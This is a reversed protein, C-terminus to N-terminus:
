IINASEWFNRFYGATVVEEDDGFLNTTLARRIDKHQLTQCATGDNTFASEVVAGQQIVHVVDSNLLTTLRHAIQIITFGLRTQEAALNAAVENQTISDLASTAEDLLLCAPEKVLARAIAIRQKQGGSLRIGGAGIKTEFQLPFTKIFKWACAKKALEVLADHGVTNAEPGDFKRELREGDELGYLINMKITGKFLHIDQSVIAISRRLQRVNWHDIPKGNLLVQGNGADVDYARKCLQLVTSKGCGAEGVLAVSKGAPIHMTMNRLVNHERLTPYAFTVGEFKFDIGGKKQGNCGFEETIVFDKVKNDQGPAPEISSRAEFLHFIRELPREVLMIEPILHNILLRLPATCSSLARM